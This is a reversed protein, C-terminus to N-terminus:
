RHWDEDWDVLMAGEALNVALVVKKLYPLLHEKAGKVVIVDNSGTNFLYDITGLEVGQTNIVRLGELDSWYFEGEPLPALQERQIGLVANSLQKAKEPTDIGPFKVLMQNGQQKTEYSKIQRWDKGTNIFWDQYSLINELPETFSILKLWGYLGYPKGLRGITIIKNSALM